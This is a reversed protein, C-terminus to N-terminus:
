EPARLHPVCLFVEQICQMGMEYMGTEDAAAVRAFARDIPRWESGVTM